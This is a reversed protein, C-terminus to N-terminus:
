GRGLFPMQTALITVEPISVDVPLMALHAVLEGVHVPDFTPEAAVTGDAQGVGSAIPRTMASAANGIDIQTCGILDGRGELAISRTLGTIAHKSVAYAVSNPRPRHASVSGINIIRGGVPQQSKMLRVAYQACLFAGTVNVALVQEWETLTVDELSASPGSIGANNVLVDLRGWQAVVTGFVEAVAPPDTVDAAVVLAAPASAP